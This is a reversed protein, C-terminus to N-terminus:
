SQARTDQKLPNIQTNHSIRELNKNIKNPKAKNGCYEPISAIEILLYMYWSELGSAQSKIQVKM